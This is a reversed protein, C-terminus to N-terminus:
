GDCCGADCGLACGVPSGECCGWDAGDDCGLLRGVSCGDARGDKAGVFKGNVPSHDSLIVLPLEMTSAFVKVSVTIAHPLACPICRAEQKWSSRAVPISTLSNRNGHSVNTLMMGRLLVVLLAVVVLVTDFLRAKALEKVASVNTTVPM